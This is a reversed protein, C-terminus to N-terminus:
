RPMLDHAIGANRVDPTGVDARERNGLVKPERSTRVPFRSSASRKRYSRQRRVGHRNLRAAIRPAVWQSSPRARSTRHAAYLKRERLANAQLGGDLPRVFRSKAHGSYKSPRSCMAAHAARVPRHRSKSLDTEHINEQKDDLKQPQDKLEHKREDVSSRCPRRRVRNRNAASGSRM